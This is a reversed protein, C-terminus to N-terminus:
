RCFCFFGLIGMLDGFQIESESKGCLSRVDATCSLNVFSRRNIKLKTLLESFSILVSVCSQLRARVDLMWITWFDLISFNLVMSQLSSIQMRGLFTFYIAALEYNM